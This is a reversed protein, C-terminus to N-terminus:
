EYSYQKDIDNFLYIFLYLPSFLCCFFVFKFHPKTICLSVVQKAFICVLKLPEPMNIKCANVDIKPSSYM